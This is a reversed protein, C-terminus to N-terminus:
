IHILSLDIVFGDEKQPEKEELEEAEFEFGNVDEM